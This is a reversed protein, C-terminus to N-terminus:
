RPPSIGKDQVPGAKIDGVSAGARAHIVRPAITGVVEDGDFVPLCPLDLSQLRVHAKQLSPDLHVFQDTGRM